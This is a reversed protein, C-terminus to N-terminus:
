VKNSITLPDPGFRNPGKTGESCWCQYSPIAGIFPIFTVLLWWGSKDIDHFRRVSSPISVVFPVVLMTLTVIITLIVLSLWGGVRALGSYNTNSLFLLVKSYNLLMVVLAVCYVGYTAIIWANIRWYEGRSIRGQFSFMIYRTYERGLVFFLRTTLNNKSKTNQPCVGEM